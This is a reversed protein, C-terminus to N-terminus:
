QWQENRKIPHRKRAIVLEKIMDGVSDPCIRMGKTYKDSKGLYDKQIEICAEIVPWYNDLLIKYDLQEKYEEVSLTPMQEM